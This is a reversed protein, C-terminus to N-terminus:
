WKPPLDLEPKNGPMIKRLAQRYERIRAEEAPTVLIAQERHLLELQDLSFLLPQVASLLEGAEFAELSEIFQENLRRYVSNASQSRFRCVAQEFAAVTEPTPKIGSPVSALPVLAPLKSGYAKVAAVLSGIVDLVESLEM